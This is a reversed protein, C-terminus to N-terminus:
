RSLLLFLARGMRTASEKKDTCNITLLKNGDFCHKDGSEANAWGFRTELCAQLEAKRCQIHNGGDVVSLWLVTSTFYRPITAVRSLLFLCLVIYHSNNDM